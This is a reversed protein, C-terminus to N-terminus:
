ELFYSKAVTELTNLDGGSPTRLTTMAVFIASVDM